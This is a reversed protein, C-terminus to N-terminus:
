PVKNTLKEAAREDFAYYNVTLEEGENIYRAAIDEESEFTSIVNPKASHNMFKALDGCLYWVGLSLYAHKKLFELAPPTMLPSDGVTADLYAQDFSYSHRCVITGAPIDEVAFVGFGHINSLGLKTRVLLM